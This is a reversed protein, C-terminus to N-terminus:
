LHIRLIFNNRNDLTRSQKDSVQPFSPDSASAIAASEMQPTIPTGSRRDASLPPTMGVMAEFYISLAQRLVEPIRAGPILREMGTGVGSGFMGQWILYGMAMQPLRAWPVPTPNLVLRMRPTLGLRDQRILNM